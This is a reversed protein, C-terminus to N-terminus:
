GSLKLADECVRRFGIELKKLSALVVKMESTRLIVADLCELKRADIKSLRWLIESDPATARGVRRRRAKLRAITKTTLL